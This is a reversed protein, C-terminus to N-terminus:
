RPLAVDVRGLDVDLVAADDARREVLVLALGDRRELAHVLRALKRRERFCMQQVRASASYQTPHHMLSMGPTPVLYDTTPPRYDSANPIARPM